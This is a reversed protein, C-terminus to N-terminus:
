GGAPTRVSRAPPPPAERVSDAPPRSRKVSRTRRALSNDRRRPRGTSTLTVSGTSGASSADAATSAAREGPSRQRHKSCGSRSRKASAPSPSAAHTPPEPRSSDGPAAPRSGRPGVRNVSAERSHRAIVSPASTSSRPESGDAGAPAPGTSIPPKAKAASPPAVGSHDDSPETRSASGSTESTRRPPSARNVTFTATRSPSSPSTSCLSSATSRRTADSPGARM